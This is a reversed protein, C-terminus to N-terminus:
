DDALAGDVGRSQLFRAAGNRRESGDGYHAIVEDDSADRGVGVPPRASASGGFSTRTKNRVIVDILDLPNDTPERSLATQMAQVLTDYSRATRLLKGLRAFDPRSGFLLEYTEGAIGIKKSQDPADQYRTKLDRL